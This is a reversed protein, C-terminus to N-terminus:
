DDMRRGFVLGADRVTRISEVEEPTLYVQFSTELKAILLQFDLPDLDLDELLRTSPYLIGAPVNLVHSIMGILREETRLEKTYAIM